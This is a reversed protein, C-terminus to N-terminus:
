VGLSELVTQAKGLLDEQEAITAAQSAVTAQATALEEKLKSVETDAAKVAVMKEEILQQCLTKVQEENMDTEKTSPTPKNEPCFSKISTLLSDPNCPVSVLSIEMLDVNKLKWVEHASDYEYDEPYYGVSFAKLVGQALLSRAERQAETLEYGKSPDGIVAEFSLGQSTVQVNRAFGIPDDYEHQYLIIPNKLYSDLKWQSMEILENIRDVTAANAIGTIVMEQSPDFAKVEVPCTFHKVQREPKQNKM